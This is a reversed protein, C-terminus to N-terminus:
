KITLEKGTLAFYINQLQHIYKIKKYYNGIVFHIEGTTLSFSVGIDKLPTWNIKEMWKKTLPIPKFDEKFSTQMYTGFHWLTLKTVEGKFLVINNPRLDSTKM